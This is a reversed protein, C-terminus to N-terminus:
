SSSPSSRTSWRSRYATFRLTGRPTGPTSGSTPCRCSKATTSTAGSTTGGAGDSQRFVRREDEGLKAPTISEYFEDAERIRREFVRDHDDFPDRRARDTYRLRLTASQGPELLLSYRGAVKTGRMAPNTADRKRQVVAEHFADKVYPTRNEVGWLRAGNSENETFLLEQAADLYFWFHGLHDEVTEVAMVDGAPEIAFMEPRGKEPAWTWTNRFWLQPLIVLPAALPGHNTATIRVLLDNADEKAYEVVVDFYRSDDFAKTDLIEPEPDNKSAARAREVLETYPFAAQPYKYLARAYSGTPTADLYWYLEKVDEGHNGQKGSVGFLREKLIRDAGNWLAVSFCVLGRNDCLGLLGDEGWRYARLAAHEFPLYDWAEGDASYDERVTGWQRESLYMGWRRWKKGDRAEQLRRHEATTRSTMRRIICDATM